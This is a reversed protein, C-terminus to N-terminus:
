LLVEKIGYGAPWAISRSAFMFKEKTERQTLTYITTGDSNKMKEVKLDPYYAMYAVPDSDGYRAEWNLISSSVMILNYMESDVSASFSSFTKSSEKTLTLPSSVLVDIKKPVIEVGVNVDSTVVSYGRKEMDAKYKGLCNEVKGKAYSAISDEFYNKLLPRQMACKQYYKNTYCLYEVKNGQYMVYNEPEIGGGQLSITKKIENIAKEACVGIYKDADEPNTAVIKIKPILLVALVGIIVIAIIIFITIQSRKNLKGSKKEKIQM